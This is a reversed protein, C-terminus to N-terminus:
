KINENTLTQLSGISDVGLVGECILVGWGCAGEERKSDLFSSETGAVGFPSSPPLRDDNTSTYLCWEKGTKTTM